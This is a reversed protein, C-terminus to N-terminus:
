DKDPISQSPVASLAKPTTGKVAHWLIDQRDAEAGTDEKLPDFFRRSENARYATRKNVQAIIARDPLIATYPAANTPQTGFVNLTPAIADYQCLPGFGLLSGMTHLVSDTNYFHSDYTGQAVFPSVVFAISRHADVHDYGDQADDEIIFIATSNWYSSHSIAEVFQGVAYDNDAVMASPAYNGPTTGDTHDNSFRVLNLQPLNGSEVYADFEHKWESFRSVAHNAGYKAKTKSSPPTLNYKVWAESDAYYTDFARFNRDTVPVLAKKTPANTPANEPTEAAKVPSPRPQKLNDCFFGYNRLSVHSKLAADWLYGGASRSVDPIGYRDPALTHNSGEYNYPAQHGTYGYHVVRENYPNAMGSTSWNWGDGSVEGSCYFNDLLAFREALAHQNPTVDRGFMLLSRDANGKPLDSLVQDYTRNEKVIYFVHQIGPNHLAKRAKELLGPVIRNNSLTLSTLHPLSRTAADLDILSVTGELISEIYRPDSGGASVAPAVGNPNRVTVGKANAVFLRKGDKSVALCTPYWGVPIYGSVTGKTLDVVAVANMDSLTVYLTKEDPSLALATPTTGSIGRADAPRLLITKVISDTDTRVVSVTDSGTNAVYLRDQARNLRLGLPHEGTALERVQKRKVADIVAVGRQESSVYVKKDTNTGQTIAVVAYPYGGVSIKALPKNTETSLVNVVSTLNKQPDGTNDAAYLTKGSSDTALGALTGQGADLDLGGMTLNGLVGLTASSVKHQAGRSVYLGIGDKGPAGFAIGYFLGERGNPGEKANQKSGDAQEGLVIQSVLKGSEANLASLRTRQGISTVLLYRGDPTLAMDTPLSGVETQAGQPTILKGTSLPTDQAGGQRAMARYHPALMVVAGLISSVFTTTILTKRSVWGAFNTRLDGVWLGNQKRMDRVM